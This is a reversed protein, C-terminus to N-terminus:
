LLSIFSVVKDPHFKGWRASTFDYYNVWESEVQKKTSKLKKKAAWEDIDEISKSWRAVTTESELNNFDNRSEVVENLLKDMKVVEMPNVPIMESNRTGIAVRISGDTKTYSFVATGTKLTELLDSIDNGLSTSEGVVPFREKLDVKYKILTM